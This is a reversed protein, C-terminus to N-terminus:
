GPAVGRRSLLDEHPDGLEKKDEGGRELPLHERM